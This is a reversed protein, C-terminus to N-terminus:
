SIVATHAYGATAQSRFSRGGLTSGTLRRSSRTLSRQEGRRKSNWPPHDAYSESGFIGLFRACNGLCTRLKERVTGGERNEGYPQLRMKTLEVRRQARRDAGGCKRVEMALLRSTAQSPSRPAPAELEPQRM